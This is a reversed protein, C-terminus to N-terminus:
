EGGGLRCALWLSFCGAACIGKGIKPVKCIKSKFCKELCITFLVQCNQRPRPPPFPPQPPPQTTGGKLGLPDTTINPKNFVYRYFNFDNSEFGIPDESIFREITPDYYRARYYYLESTDFERGTYAYPNNTEITKTHNIITGYHNDYQFSEVIQGSSDTLAVISGQHDRHYYFTGNANTISLPTDINEDHTITAIVQNQEDLIAIIDDGDYLYRQEVGHFSGVFM